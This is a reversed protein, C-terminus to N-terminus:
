HMREEHTWIQWLQQLKWQIERAARKVLTPHHHDQLSTAASSVNTTQKDTKIRYIKITNLHKATVEICSTSHNRVM